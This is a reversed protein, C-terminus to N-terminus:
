FGGAFLQLVSDAGNRGTVTANTTALLLEMHSRPATSPRSSVLDPLDDEGQVETGTNQEQVDQSAHCDTTSAVAPEDGQADAVADDAAAALLSLVPSQASTSDALLRVHPSASRTRDSPPPPPVSSPADADATADGMSAILGLVPSGPGSPDTADALLRM